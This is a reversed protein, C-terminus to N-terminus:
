EYEIWNLGVGVDGNGALTRAYIVFMQSNRTFPEMRLRTHNSLVEVKADSTGSFSGQNAPVYGVDIIHQTAATISTVDTTYEMCSDDDVPNWTGVVVSADHVHVLEFFSDAGNTIARASLLDAHKLNKFGRFTDMLRIAILPTRTTSIARLPVGTAAAFELGPIQEGGESVISSCIHKLYSASATTGVNRIEYRLPLIARSMYVVSEINATVMQHVYYNIGDINLGFRVRGVGQWLYDIVFLQVKSPDLNIRSPGHGDMKDINWDAQYVNVNVISGSTYTRRGVSVGSGDVQFFLGNEDDFNGIRGIVNAKPIGLIGTMTVMQSKGPVYHFNEYTQRVVYEGDVTGVNLNASSENHLYTVSAGVGNIDEAWTNNTDYTLQSAYIQHPVGMRFRGAADNVPGDDFVIANEKSTIQGM